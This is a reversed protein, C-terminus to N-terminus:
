GNIKGRVIEQDNVQLMGIMGLEQIGIGMAKEGIEMLLHIFIM